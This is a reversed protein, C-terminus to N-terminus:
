VRRRRWQCRERRDRAARRCLCGRAVSPRQAGRGRRGYAYRRRWSRPSGGSYTRAWGTVAVAKEAVAAAKAVAQMVLSVTTAVVATSAAAVVATSAAAVQHQEADRSPAVKVEMAGVMAVMVEMAGVMAVMVEVAGVMAVMVVMAVRIAVMVVMVVMVVRIAVMGGAATAVKVVTSGETASMVGVAAMVTAAVTEVGGATGGVLQAVRAVLVRAVVPRAVAAVAVAVMQAAMGVVAMGDEPAVWAATAAVAMAADEVGAEAGGVAWAAMGEPRDAMVVVREVASAVVAWVEGREEAVMGAM